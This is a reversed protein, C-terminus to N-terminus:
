HKVTVTKFNKMEWLSRCKMRCLGSSQTAPRHAGWVTPETRWRKEVKGGHERDRGKLKSETSLFSVM